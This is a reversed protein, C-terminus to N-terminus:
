HTSFRSLITSTSLTLNPTQPKLGIFLRVPRFEAQRCSVYRVVTLAPLFQSWVKPSSKGNQIVWQINQYLVMSIGWLPVKALLLSSRATGNANKIVRIKSEHEVDAQETSPQAGRRALTNMICHRNSTIVSRLQWIGEKAVLWTSSNLWKTYYWRMRYASHEFHIRIAASTWWEWRLVWIVIETLVFLITPAPLRCQSSLVSM